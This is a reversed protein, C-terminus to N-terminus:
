VHARGIEDSSVFVGNVKDFNLGFIYLARYDVINAKIGSFQEQKPFMESRPIKITKVKGKKDIKESDITYDIIRDVNGNPSLCILYNIDAKSFGKPLVKNNKALFDYYENLAKILM